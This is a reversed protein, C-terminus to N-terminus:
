SIRPKTGVHIAITGFMFRRYRIHILGSERMIQALQKPPYFDKTSQPLYTYASRHGSVIQGLLPIIHDLFFHILPRFITDPPPSTDLCVVKGGPKVVRAQEAFAQSADQVNRILWGSTVADFDADKFPLSLADGACWLVRNGHTRKKGVQMMALAFDSGVVRLLPDSQLAKRAIRGTGTGVDLLCGGRSLKALKVVWKRWVQDQGFTMLLNILDYQGAIQGFMEKNKEIEHKTKM